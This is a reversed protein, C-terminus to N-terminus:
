HGSNAQNKSAIRDSASTTFQLSTSKRGARFEHQLRSCIQPTDRPRRDNLNGGSGICESGILMPSLKPLAIANSLSWATMVAGSSLREGSGQARGRRTEPRAGRESGVPPKGDPRRRKQIEEHRHNEPRRGRRARRDGRAFHDNVLHRVVSRRPLLGSMFWPANPM